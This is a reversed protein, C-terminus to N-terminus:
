KCKVRAAELDVHRDLNTGLGDGWRRLGPIVVFDIKGQIPAGDEEEIDVIKGLAHVNTGDLLSVEPVYLEIRSRQKSMIMALNAACDVVLELNRGWGSQPSYAKGLNGASLPDVLKELVSRKVEDSGPATTGYKEHLRTGTLSKWKESLESM